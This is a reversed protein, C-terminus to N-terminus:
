VTPRWRRALGGLVRNAVFLCHVGISIVADFRNAQNIQPM